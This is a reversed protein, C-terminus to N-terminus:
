TSHKRNLYNREVFQKIAEQTRYLDPTMALLESFHRSRGRDSASYDHTAKNRLERVRLWGEMDPVIGLQEMYNVVYTFLRTDEGEIEAILRMASGLHDQLEAFRAKFAALVELRDPTLDAWPMQERWWSVVKGHSYRLHDAMREIHGLKEALADFRDNEGARSV